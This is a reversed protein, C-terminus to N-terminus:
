LPRVLAGWRYVGIACVCSFIFFFICLTHIYLTIAGTETEESIARCQSLLLLGVRSILTFWDTMQLCDVILLVSLLAFETRTFLLLLLLLVCVYLYM